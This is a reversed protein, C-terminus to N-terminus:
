PRLNYQLYKFRSLDYILILVAATHDNRCFLKHSRSTFPTFSIQIIKAGVNVYNLVILLLINSNLYKLFYHARKVIQCDSIHCHIVTYEDCVFLMKRLTVAYCFILLSVIFQLFLVHKKQTEM